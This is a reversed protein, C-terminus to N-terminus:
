IKPGAVVCNNASMSINPTTAPVYEETRIEPGSRISTCLRVRPLSVVTYRQTFLVSVYLFFAASSGGRRKKAIYYFFSPLRAKIFPKFLAYLICNM